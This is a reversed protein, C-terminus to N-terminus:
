EHQDKRTVHTRPTQESGRSTGASVNRGRRSGARGRGSARPLRVEDEDVQGGTGPVLEGQRVLEGSKELIEVDLEVVGDEEQPNTSVEDSKEKYKPDVPEVQELGAEQEEANSITKSLDRGPSSRM